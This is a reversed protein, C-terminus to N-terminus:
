YHELSGTKQGPFHGPGYSTRMFRGLGLYSRFVLYSYGLLQTYLFLGVLDIISYGILGAFPKFNYLKSVQCANKDTLFLGFSMHIMCEQLVSLIFM